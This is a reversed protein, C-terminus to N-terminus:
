IPVISAITDVIADSGPIVQKAIGGLLNALFGGKGEVVLRHFVQQFKTVEDKGQGTLFEEAYTNLRNWEGSGTGGIIFSTTDQEYSYPLKGQVQIMSKTLVDNTEDPREKPLIVLDYLTHLEQSVAFKSLIEATALDVITADPLAKVNEEARRIITRTKVNGTEYPKNALFKLSDSIKMPMKSQEGANELSRLVRSALVVELGKPGSDTAIEEIPTSYQIFKTVESNWDDLCNAYFTGQVNVFSGGATCDIFDISAEAPTSFLPGFVNGANDVINIIPLTDRYWRGVVPIFAQPNKSNPSGVVRAKLAALNEALIIPVKMRAFKSNGSNHGMVFFGLFANVNNVWQNNGQFQMFYQSDFIALLANRVLLYFTQASFPLPTLADPQNAIAAKYKLKAMWLALLTYVEDADIQQIKPPQKNFYGRWSSHLPWGLTALSDLSSPMLSRALRPDTANSNDQYPVFKSMIPAPLSKLELECDLWSGGLSPTSQNGVYSYTRGFTSVDRALIKCTEAPVTSLNGNRDLNNIISLLTPYADPTTNPLYVNAIEAQGGGDTSVYTPAWMHGYMPIQALSISTPDFPKWGFSIQGCDYTMQKPKLAQFLCDVVRPLNNVTLVSGMFNQAGNTILYNLGNYISAWQQSQNVKDVNIVGKQALYSALAIFANRYSALSFSASIQVRKDQNPLIDESLVVTREHTITQRGTRQIRDNRGNRQRRKSRTNKPASQGGKQKPIQKKQTKNM